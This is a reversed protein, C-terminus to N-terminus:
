QSIYAIPGTKFQSAQIQTTFRGGLGWGDLYDAVEARGHRNVSAEHINDHTAHLLCRPVEGSPQCTMDSLCGSRDQEGFMVLTSRWVMSEDIGDQIRRGGLSEKAARTCSRIHLARRPQEQQLGGGPGDM